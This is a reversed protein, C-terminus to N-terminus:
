GMNHARQSGLGEDQCCGQSHPVTVTGWKTPSFVLACSRLLKTSSGLSSGACGSVLSRGCDMYHPSWLDLMRRLPMASHDRNLVLHPFCTRPTDLAPSKSVNGAEPVEGSGKSDANWSGSPRLSLSATLCSSGAESGGRELGEGPDERLRRKEEEIM